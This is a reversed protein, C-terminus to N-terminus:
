VDFRRNGAGITDVTVKSTVKVLEKGTTDRGTIELSAGPNGDMAWRLVHKRGTQLFMSGVDNVIKLNAHGVDITYLAIGSSPKAAFIVKRTSM